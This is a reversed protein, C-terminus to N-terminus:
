ATASILILITVVDQVPGCLLNRAKIPKSMRKNNYNDIFPM